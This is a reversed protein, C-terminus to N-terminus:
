IKVGKSPQKTPVTVTLLNSFRDPKAVKHTKIKRQKM